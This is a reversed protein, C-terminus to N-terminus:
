QEPPTAPTAAPAVGLASRLQDLDGNAGVVFLLEDRAELTNDPNPSIPHNDRVIVALVCDPPFTIQSLRKGVLSSAHPITFGLMEARSEHFLFLRVLAGVDVAEEVLATLIRPTSVAVDVGWADDFMWENKPNNVRAVTRSVAYETRALLSVVLNVKDDGTAAVVVDAEDLKAKALTALEAADGLLWDAEPVSAVRMATPLKDVLLVEHGGACLERAVSRGVSGAGIIVVKM